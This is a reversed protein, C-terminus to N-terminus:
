AKGVGRKHFRSGVFGVLSLFIYVNGGFSLGEPTILLENPTCCFLIRPPFFIHCQQKKGQSDVAQNHNRLVFPLRDIAGGYRLAAGRLRPSSM